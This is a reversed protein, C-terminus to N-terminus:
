LALPSEPNRGSLLYYGHHHNQWRHFDSDDEFMVSCACYIDPLSDPLSSDESQYGSLPWDVVASIKIGMHDIPQNNLHLTADKLAEGYCLNCNQLM